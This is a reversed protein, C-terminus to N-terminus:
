DCGVYRAQQRVARQSGDVRTVRAVILYDGCGPVSLWWWEFVGPEYEGELDEGTLRYFHEGDVSVDLRRNDTHREVWIRVHMDQLRAVSVLPKVELRLPPPADAALTVLALLLAKM